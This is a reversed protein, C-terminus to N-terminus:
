PYADARIWCLWSDFQKLGSPDFRDSTLTLLELFPVAVADPSAWDTPSYDRALLAHARGGASRRSSPNAVEFRNNWQRPMRRCQSGQLVLALHQHLVARAQHVTCPDRVSATMALRYRRRPHRAGGQSENVLRFAGDLAAHARRQQAVLVHVDRALLSYRAGLFFGHHRPSTVGSAPRAPGADACRLGPRVGEPRYMEAIFRM